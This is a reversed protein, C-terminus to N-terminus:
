ISLSCWAYPLHHNKELLTFQVFNTQLKTQHYKLYRCFCRKEVWNSNQLFTDVHIRMCWLKRNNRRIHPDNQLHHPIQFIDQSFHSIYTLVNVQPFCIQLDILRYTQIKFFISQQRFQLSSISTALMTKM